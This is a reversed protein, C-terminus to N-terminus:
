YLQFLSTEMSLLDWLVYKAVEYSTPKIFFIILIDRGPQIEFQESFYCCKELVVECALLEPSTSFTEILWDDQIDLRKLCICSKKLVGLAVITPKWSISFTTWLMRVNSMKQDSPCLQVSVWWFWNFFLEWHVFLLFMWKQVKPGRTQTVFGGFWHGGKNLDLYNCLFSEMRGVVCCM